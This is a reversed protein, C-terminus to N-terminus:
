RRRSRRQGAGGRDSDDSEREEQRMMDCTIKEEHVPRANMDCAVHELEENPEEIKGADREAKKREIRGLEVRTLQDVALQLREQALVALRAIHASLSRTCQGADGEEMNIMM